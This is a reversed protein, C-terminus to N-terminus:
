HAAIAVDDHSKFAASLSCYSEAWNGLHEFGLRLLKDSGFAVAGTGGVLLAGMVLPGGVASTVVATAAAGAVSSGMMGALATTLGGLGLQSVASATGAYGALAGAGATSASAVAKTITFTSIAGKEIAEWTSNDTGTLKDSYARCITEPTIELFNKADKVLQKNFLLKEIYKPSIFDLPTSAFAPAASTFSLHLTIILAILFVSLIRKLWNFM